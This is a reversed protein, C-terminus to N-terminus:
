GRRSGPRCGRHSTTPAIFAKSRRGTLEATFRLEKPPGVTRAFYSVPQPQLGRRLAWDQFITLVRSIKEPSGQILERLYHIRGNRWAEVHSPALLGMGTFVDVPCVYKHEALAAEGARVVREELSPKPRDGTAERDFM